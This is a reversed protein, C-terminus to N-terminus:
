PIFDLILKKMKGEHYLHLIIAIFSISNMSTWRDITPCPLPYKQIGLSIWLLFDTNQWNQFFWSLYPLFREKMPLHYRPSGVTWIEALFTCFQHLSQFFLALFAFSLSIQLSIQGCSFFSFLYLSTTSPPYLLAIPSGIGWIELLISVSTTSFIM